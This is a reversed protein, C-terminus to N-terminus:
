QYEEPIVQRRVDPPPAPVDKRPRRRLIRRIVAEIANDAAVTRRRITGSMSGAVSYSQEEVLAEILEPHDELYALYRNTERRVVETLRDSTELKHIVHDTYAEVLRDVNENRTLYAVFKDVLREAAASETVRAVVLDILEDLGPVNRNWWM